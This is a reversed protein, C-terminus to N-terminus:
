KEIPIYIETRLNEPKTRRPDRNLYIEFCPLDKMKYGSEPLWHNFIYAYSQQFNDYSGKHLFVAYNGGAISYTMLNDDKEPEAAINLCADYRIHDGQTVSPDDHSIGIAKVEKNMLKNSYAFQMIRAWAQPAAEKYPGTERACVIDINNITKIEPTMDVNEYTAQNLNNSTQLAMQKRFQSPTYSFQNKFAKNFSSQNDYAASFAIETISKSTYLLHKAARELLLRKKYAYVSEGTYARFIRHFHFESYCALNMLKSVDMESDLQEEIYQLLRNMMEFHTKKSM